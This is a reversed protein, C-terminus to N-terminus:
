LGPPSPREESESGPSCRDAPDTRTLHRAAPEVPHRRALPRDLGHVGSRRSGREALHGHIRLPQLEPRRFRRRPRHGARQADFLKKFGPMGPHLGYGDTLRLATSPEIALSGRLATYTSDALPIVTNLGDNGGYLTVLVLKSGRGEGMAATRRAPGDGFLESWGPGGLAAGLVVLAGAGGALGLFARRGLRSQRPSAPPLAIPTESTPIPEVPTPEMPAQEMLEHRVRAVGLGADGPHAPRGRRAAPGLRDGRGLPSRRAARSGGGGPGVRVRRRRDLHRGTPGLPARVGVPGPGCGDLALLQEAALGRREAPRLPGPGNRGDCRHGRDAKAQLDAPGIGLARLAGVVYETPQKVLGRIAKSSTFEPHLFIASLLNALNRDAAYGPALDHIVPDHPTVPYALVSWFRSPVFRSSAASQTVIDIVQSGSSVGTKALFTQPRDAHDAADFVFVGTRRDVSWGTFCFSAALVDDQTYSGIGMTFREMLERAFNENPDSAKNSDADLWILMAPDTAVAQTLATFDGSGLTRFLQNQGYMYAPYKVKSIATPFQGHLLFTLKEKLPTSTVIMRGLWWSTLDM